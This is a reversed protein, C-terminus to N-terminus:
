RLSLRLEVLVLEGAALSAPLLLEGLVSVEVLVSLEVVVLPPDVDVAAADGAEAQDRHVAGAETPARKRRHGSAPM